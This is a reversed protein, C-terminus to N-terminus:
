TDNMKELAFDISRQAEISEWDGPSVDPLIYPFSEFGKQYLVNWADVLNEVHTNSQSAYARICAVEWLTM